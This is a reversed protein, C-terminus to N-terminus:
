SEEKKKKEPWVQIIIIIGLLGIIAMLFWFLLNGDKATMSEAGAAFTKRNAGLITILMGLGVGLDKTHNM